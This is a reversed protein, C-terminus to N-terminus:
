KDGQLIENNRPKIIWPHVADSLTTNYVRRRRKNDRDMIKNRGNIRRIPM